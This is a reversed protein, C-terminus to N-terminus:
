SRMLAKQIFNLLILFQPDDNKKSKILDLLDELYSKM